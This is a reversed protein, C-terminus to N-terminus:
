QWLDLLTSYLGSQFRSNGGLICSCKEVSSRDQDVATSSLHFGESSPMTRPIRQKFWPFAAQIHPALVQSGEESHGARPETHWAKASPLWGGGGEGAGGAEEWESHMIGLHGCYAILASEIHWRQVVSAIQVASLLSPPLSQHAPRNPFNVSM